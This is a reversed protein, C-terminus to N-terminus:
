KKEIFVLSKHPIHIAKKITLTRRPFHVEASKLLQEKTANVDAELCGVLNSNFFVDLSELMNM